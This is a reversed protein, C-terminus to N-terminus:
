WRSESKFGSLISDLLTNDFQSDIFVKEISYKRGDDVSNILNMLESSYNGAYEDDLSAGTQSKFEEKSSYKKWNKSGVTREFIEGNTMLLITHVGDLLDNIYVNVTVGNNFFDDIEAENIDYEEEDFDNSETVKKDVEFYQDLVELTDKDSERYWVEGDLVSVKEDAILKQLQPETAFLDMEEGTIDIKMSGEINSGPRQNEIIFQSYRKIM